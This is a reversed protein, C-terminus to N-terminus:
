DCHSMCVNCNTLLHLLLMHYSLIFKKFSYGTNSINWWFPQLGTISWMIMMRFMPNKNVFMVSYSVFCSKPNASTWQLCVTYNLFSLNHFVQSHTTEQTWPCSYRQVIWRYRRVDTMLIFMLVALLGRQVVRTNRHKFDQLHLVTLMPLISFDNVFVMFKLFHTCSPYWLHQILYSGGKYTKHPLVHQRLTVM